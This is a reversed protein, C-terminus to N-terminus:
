KHQYEIVLISLFPGLACKGKLIFSGFLNTMKNLIVLVSPRRASLKMLFAEVILVVLIFIEM